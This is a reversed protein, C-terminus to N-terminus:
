IVDSLSVDAREKVGGLVIVGGDGQAAKELAECQECVNQQGM